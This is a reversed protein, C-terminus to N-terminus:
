DLTGRFDLNTVEEGRRVLIEAVAGNMEELFMRERDVNYEDRNMARETAYDRVIEDFIPSYPLLDTTATLSTPMSYYYGWLIYTDDPIAPGLVIYDGDLAYCTPEGITTGVNRNVWDLDRRVLRDESRPHTFIAFTTTADTLTITPSLSAVLTTGNYDTIVTQQDAATGGTTRLLYGNYTDDSTAADADLTVSTTGGAALTGSHEVDLLYLEYFSVFGSPLAYRRINATTETAVWETWGMDSRHRILMPAVIMKCARNIYRILENDRGTGSLKLDDKISTLISSVATNAM